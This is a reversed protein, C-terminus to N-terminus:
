PAQSVNSAARISEKAWVDPQDILPGCCPAIICVKFYQPPLEDPQPPIQVGFLTMCSHLSACVCLRLSASVCLCLSVFVCLCVPICISLVLFLVRSLFFFFHFFYVRIFLCVPLLSLSLFHFLSLPVCVCVCVRMCVFVCVLLRACSRVYVDIDSHGRSSPLTCPCANMM